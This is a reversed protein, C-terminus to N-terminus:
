CSPRDEGVLRCRALSEEPLMLPVLGYALSLPLQDALIGTCPFEIVDLRVTSFKIVYRRGVEINHSFQARKVIGPGFSAAHHRPCFQQRPSLRNRVKDVTIRYAIILLGTRCRLERQPAYWM